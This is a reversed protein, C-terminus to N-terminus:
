GEGEVCIYALVYLSVCQCVCARASVCARVCVSDSAIECANTSRDPTPTNAAAQETIEAEVVNERCKGVRNSEEYRDADERHPVSRIRRNTRVRHTCLAVAVVLALAISRLSWWDTNVTTFM